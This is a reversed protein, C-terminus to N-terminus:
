ADVSFGGLAYGSADWVGVPVDFSQWLIAPPLVFALAGLDLSGELGFAALNLEGPYGYGIQIEAKQQGQMLRGWSDRGDWEVAHVLNPAPAFTERFERGAIKVLSVVTTVGEPVTDGTLPVELLFGPGYATTRDSQDHLSYPTGTIEVGQALAQTEVIAPGRATPRELPRQRPMSVTPAAATMPAGLPLETDYTSFHEVRWRWVSQGPQYHRALAVLESESIRLEAPDDARGDGDIDLEARGGSSGLIEIVWAPEQQEWQGIKDNYYGLPARSGPRLQLFNDVYVAAPQDFSIREADIEEAEAVSFSLAYHLGSSTPTAPAFRPVVEASPEFPYETISLSLSDLDKRSGDALRASARTGPEFVVLPQRSGFEDEVREATAAEGSGPRVRSVKTSASLLAVAPLTAYRQWAPQVSRQVKLFGDAEYVFVLRGGGNVAMDFAGDARSLTWGFEPRGLVSVKVGAAPGGGPDEVKGRVVAIRRADLADRDVGKQLPDDGEYLFRAAETVTTPVTRDLAPAVDCGGTVRCDPEPPSAGKKEDDSCSCGGALASLLFLWFFTRNM